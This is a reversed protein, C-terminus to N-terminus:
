LGPRPANDPSHAARAVKRAFLASEASFLMLALWIPIFALLEPLRIPEHQILIALLFQCTPAIYQLFGLTSLRLNHAAHVFLLLPIATIAGSLALLAYTSGPVPTAHTPTLWLIYALGLPLLMATEITLGVIPGVGILKRVLGYLGFSIAVSLGIWPLQGRAVVMLIVGTAGLAVSVWQWARLRERLVILGLLVSVLPNIYYGLASQALQHKEVSYIFVLWNIAILISSAALALLRKRDRLVGIAERTRGLVIMLLACFGVSWVVRHALLEMAGVGRDTLMKFYIAIFGWILYAGIGSLLGGTPRSHSM